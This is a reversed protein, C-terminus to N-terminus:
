KGKGHLRSMRKKYEVVDPKKPKFLEVVANKPNSLIKAQRIMSKRNRNASKFMDTVDGDSGLHRRVFSPPNIMSNFGGIIILLKIVVGYPEDPTPVGYIFLGLVLLYFSYVLQVVSLQKVTNWWKNFLHKHQDFIYATGALPAISGLCMLDFFRKGNKLLVPVTMGLLIADFLILVVTDITHNTNMMAETINNGGLSIIKESLFNIFRFGQKFIEPSLFSLGAVMFWRKSITLMDVAKKKFMMKIAEVTTLISVISISLISFTLSTNEFWTNDFIWLPTKLILTSVVEYIWGTFEATWTNINSPIAKIWQITDNLTSFVNRMDEPIPNFWQTDKKYTDINKEFSLAHAKNTNLFLFSSSIVGFPIIM